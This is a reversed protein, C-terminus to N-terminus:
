TSSEEEAKKMDLSGYRPHYMRRDLSWIKESFTGEPIRDLIGQMENMRADLVDIWHLAEAEPFMPRRPSGYDPEGHHSIIMHELLLVLEGDIEVKAAAERLKAVGRVLHGVLLGDATYDSVNGYNDSDMESIKALDHLIVGARLLDADLFPYCALVADATKLMSTTHHLLGSREAHHLRQAAPFYNLEEGAMRLAETLLAKLPERTMGDIVKYLTLRMDEPQEPACPTLLSVDMEDQPEVPRMKDVRLQLRGNYELVLGRVKMASGTQPVTAASDWVKANIEGTKDALNMDLYRSGSTATRQEASRVLLFGEFRLDKVFQSVATQEM